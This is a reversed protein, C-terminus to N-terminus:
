QFLADTTKEFFSQPFVAPAIKGVPQYLYTAAIQEEPIFHKQSNIRNIFLIVTSLVLANAFVGFLAGALRNFLGLAIASALATLLYGAVVALLIVLLFILLFSIVSCATEGVHRMLFPEVKGSLTFGCWLGAFVAIISLSQKIFGKRFGKFAGWVLCLLIFIDLIYHM